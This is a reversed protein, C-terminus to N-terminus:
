KEAPVTITPPVTLKLPQAPVPGQFVQKGDLIVTVTGSLGLGPLWTQGDLDRRGHGLDLTVEPTGAVTLHVENNKIDCVFHPAASMTPEWAMTVGNRGRREVTDNMNRRM